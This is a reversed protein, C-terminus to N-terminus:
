DEVYVNRKRIRAAAIYERLAPIALACGVIVASILKMAYSPFLDSRIAATLIFRYVLSGVVAALLGSLITRKRLVVEGLIIAALGVVLMGAGSNMDAFGQDSAILAGSLAILANSIMLALSKYRAVNISSARAMAENDGIARVSLGSNTKFYLQLLVVFLVVIVASMLIRNVDGPLPLLDSSMSYITDIGILTINSAGNMVLLNITYLGTMTLIGSLIAPIRLKTQLLATILGALAGSILALGLGLLPRGQTAATALVAMGLTFSGEATLDPTNLVRFSIYIGMALLSYILGLQIAGYVITLM